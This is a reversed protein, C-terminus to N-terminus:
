KYLNKRQKISIIAIFIEYALFKLRFILYMMIDINDFLFKTILFKLYSLIQKVTSFCLHNQLTLVNFLYYISYYIFNM